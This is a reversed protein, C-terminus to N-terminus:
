FERKAFIEDSLIKHFLKKEKLLLLSSDHKMFGLPIAGCQVRPVQSSEPHFFVTKLSIKLSISSSPKSYTTNFLFRAPNM